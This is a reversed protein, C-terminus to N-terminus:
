KEMKCSEMMAWKMLSSNEQVRESIIPFIIERNYGYDDDDGGCDDNDISIFFHM